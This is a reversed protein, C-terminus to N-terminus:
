STGGQKCIRWMHKLLGPVAAQESMQSSAEVLVVSAIGSAGGSGIGMRM